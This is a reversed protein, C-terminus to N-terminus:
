LLPSSTGQVQSLFSAGQILFYVVCRPPSSFRGVKPYPFFHGVKLYSFSTGQNNFSIVCRPFSIFRGVKSFLVFRRVKSIFPFSAGQIYSSVVCRAKICYLSHRIKSSLSLFVVYRSSSLFPTSSAPSFSSLVFPHTLLVPGRIDMSRPQCTTEFCVSM